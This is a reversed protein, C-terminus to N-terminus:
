GREQKKDNVLRDYHNRDIAKGITENEYVFDLWITNSLPDYDHYYIAEASADKKMLVSKIQAMLAHDIGDESMLIAERLAQPSRVCILDSASFQDRLEQPAKGDVSMYALFRRKPDHYLFNHIYTIQEHCIPCTFAFMRGSLIREREKPELDPQILTHSKIHTHYGCQRCVIEVLIHRM